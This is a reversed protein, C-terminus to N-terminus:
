LAELMAQQAGAIGPNTAQGPKGGSGLQATGLTAQDATPKSGTFLIGVSVGGAGGGGEAGAAGHGGPAGDCGATGNGRGKGGFETQAPQGAAGAGGDGGGLTFLQSESITLTSAYVVLAISGGGGGGGGGGAGGCGGAGGGGGAGQYGGGGGGGQGVPGDSGKSGSQPAWGSASLEGIKAAGAAPGPAVSDNGTSGGKNSKQCDSVSGGEGAGGDLPEGPQGDFGPDGGAGGKSSAGSPCNVTRATGGHKVGADDTAGLGDLDTQSPFTAFPALTGPSGAAGKGASLRVRKLEVHSANVFAAISSGKQADIAQFALDAITVTQAAGSITLASSSAGIIPQVQAANWACDVGGFLSVGGKSADITVDEAYRGDCVYIRRKSANSKDLAAKITRLPKEKTGDAQDDGNAASVFISSAPDLCAADRSDICPDHGADDAGDGGEGSTGM